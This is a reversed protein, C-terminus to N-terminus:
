EVQKSKKCECATPVCFCGGMGVRAKAPPLTSVSFCQELMSLNKSQAQECRKSSPSLNRDRTKIMKSFFDATFIALLDILPELYQHYYAIKTSVPKNGRTKITECFYCRSHLNCISILYMHMPMLMHLHYLRANGKVWRCWTGGIRAGM